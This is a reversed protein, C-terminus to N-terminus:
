RAGLIAIRIKIQLSLWLNHELQDTVLEIKVMLMMMSSLNVKYILLFLMKNFFTSAAVFFTQNSFDDTTAEDISEDELKVSDVAEDKNKNKAALEKARRNRHNKKGRKARRIQGSETAQAPPGTRDAEDDLGEPWEEASRQRRKEGKSYIQDSAKRQKKTRKMSDLESTDRKEM